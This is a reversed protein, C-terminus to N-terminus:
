AGIGGFVFLGVSGQLMSSRGIGFDRLPKLLNALPSPADEKDGGGLQALPAAAARLARRAPRVRLGGDLLSRRCSTSASASSVSRGALSSQQLGCRQM